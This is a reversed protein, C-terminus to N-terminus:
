NYKPLHNERDGLHCHSCGSGTTRPMSPLIASHRHSYRMSMLNVGRYQLLEGLDGMVRMSADRVLIGAGQLTVDGNNGRTDLNGAAIAGNNSQLVIGNPAVINDTIIENHTQIELGHTSIAAIEGNAVLRDLRTTGGIAENIEIGGSGSTLSLDYNGDIAGKLEIAGSGDTNLALNSNLLLTGDLIIDNNETAIATGQASINGTASVAIRGGDMGGLSVADMRGIAINGNPAALSIDGGAKVASTIIVGATTDINGTTSTLSLSGGNGGFGSLM